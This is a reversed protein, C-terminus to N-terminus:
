EKEEKGSAKARRKKAKRYTPSRKALDEEGAVPIGLPAAVPASAPAPMPRPPAGYTQLAQMAAEYEAIRCAHHAIEEVLSSHDPVLTPNNLLMDMLALSEMAKGRLQTIAANYLKNNM